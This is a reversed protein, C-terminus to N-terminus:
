TSHERGGAGSLLDCPSLYLTRGLGLHGPDSGSFRSRSESDAGEMVGRDAANPATINNNDSVVQIWHMNNRPDTGAPRYEVDFIAGVLTPRGEADYTHVRLSNNSFRRPDGVFNWGKVTTLPDLYAIGWGRPTNYVDLLDHLGTTTHGFITRAQPDVTIPGGLARQGFLTTGLFLGLLLLTGGRKVYRGFGSSPDPTDCTLRM